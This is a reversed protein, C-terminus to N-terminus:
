HLHNSLRLDRNLAPAPAHQDLFCSVPERFFIFFIPRVAVAPCPLSRSRLTPVLPCLSFRWVLSCRRTPVSFPWCRFRRPRTRPRALPPQKAAQSSPKAQGPTHIALQSAESFHPPPSAADSCVQDSPASLAFRCIPRSSAHLHLAVALRRSPHRRTPQARLPPVPVPVAPGCACVPGLLAHLALCLALWFSPQRPEHPDHRQFQATGPLRLYRRSGGPPARRPHALPLSLPPFPGPQSGCPPVQRHHSKPRGCVLLRYLPVVDRACLRPQAQWERNWPFILHLYRQPKECRRLDFVRVGM